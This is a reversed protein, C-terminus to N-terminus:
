EAAHARTTDRVAPNNGIFTLWALNNVARWMMTAAALFSVLSAAFYGYGYWAFGPIITLATLGANLALFLLYLWMVQRRLDLYALVITSFLFLGHFAAGLAGFRFMGLQEAHMALPGALVASLLIALAALALQLVVLTRAGGKVAAIIAAHNARIVKLPAHNQIDGYFNRYRAYFLTEISVVFVAMAPILLLQAYFMAGDYLPYSPLNFAPLIREPAFWMVWKDSWIALNYALGAIALDGFRRFAGSLGSWGALRYPYEALIRAILIFLTLACGAAFGGFIGIAGERMLADALFVGGAMGAIFALAVTRYDKLASLFVAACWIASVTFYNFIALASLPQSIEAIGLYLVLVFPLQVLSSAALSVILSAPAQRADRDFIRDSLFRTAVASFPGTLALSFAFNYIILTRVLMLENGATDRAALLNIAAIAAVTIIWPGSTVFAAYALGSVPGTLDDRRALKRLTFGIGAM